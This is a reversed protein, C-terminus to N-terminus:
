NGIKSQAFTKGAELAITIKTPDKGGAQAMDPRGGGGGGTVKAVERVWDGAKLGQSIMAKPVSALFACKDGTQAALLLAADPKKAKIVDMADRLTNGDAGIVQAIIINGQATDAIERAADVAASASAKGQEKQAAKIKKQAEKIGDRLRAADILPIITEEIAKALNNTQTAFEDGQYNNLDLLRHNLKDSAQIAQQALTGTLASIRRVGKSVGEESIIVFQDINHTNDIHVGGCFEISYNRWKEEDPAGLLIEVPVGISVVRVTPPYKEGFVARLSNIKLAEEQPVYATHIPHQAAIDQAVGQQIKTLEQISLPSKHSFDFRTKQEDVLSGKQAIHDGLIDRLKHNLLHTVTHNATIKHRRDADVSLVSGGCILNDTADKAVTGVHFYVDGVKQTDTVIFEVGNSATIIGTDGVQGGAQAYFPTQDTIAVLNRGKIGRTTLEPLNADLDFLYQINGPTETSQYGLFEIPKTQHKQTIDLLLTQIDMCGSTARSIKRAQEMLQDFAHQDVKLNREAAMLQTLSFPFGYTDHLRFADESSIHTTSKEAAQNFLEIGRALTKSFSIEEDKIEAKVEEAKDKIEPFIDSFNEIIADVLKYFFPENTGLTQRGFRVARRLISRLVYSRGENGCHAGDALAFTLTRIHDAIVRYAINIPDKLATDHGGPTYKRAGTLKQIADFIPTFVDTDYNSDKNQLVRVIREFGMGTDVHQAPLLSLSSDPSRNYQIFVLNWVEIIDPDDQNVLAAGSFDATGDYHLESCPGCPGVEGMEWFNDKKNGPHVQTEPLHKLWMDRAELDPELNESTDGEFYTAHLRKPDLGWVGTMLEFAWDIAEQKFYDGFSWNGLMEFFTHHYTDIGVDDLDNHKGGARICKQTDVARKYDRSGTGLFVDKFQNMGANTFLLTPDDHPVVPSSPVATHGHKSVFFDIFQQRIERSTHM